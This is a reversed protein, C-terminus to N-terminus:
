IKHSSCSLCFHIEAMAAWRQIRRDTEAQRTTCEKVAAHVWIYSHCIIPFARQKHVIPCMQLQRVPKTATVSYVSFSTITCKVDYSQFSM